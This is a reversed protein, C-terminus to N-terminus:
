YFPASQQTRAKGAKENKPGSLSFSDMGAVRSSRVMITDDGRCWSVAPFLSKWLGKGALWICCVGTVPRGHGRNLSAGEPFARHREAAGVPKTEQEPLGRLSFILSKILM